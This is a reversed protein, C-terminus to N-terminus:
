RGGLVKDLNTFEKLEQEKRFILSYIHDRSLQKINDLCFLLEDKQTLIDGFKRSFDFMVPYLTNEIHFNSILVSLYGKLKIRTAIKKHFTILNKLLAPYEHLFEKPSGRLLTGIKFPISLAYDCIPIKSTDKQFPTITYYDRNLEKCITEVTRPNSAICLVKQKPKTFFNILGTLIEAQFTAISNTKVPKFSKSYIIWEKGTLENLKNNKNYWGREGCNIYNPNSSKDKIM